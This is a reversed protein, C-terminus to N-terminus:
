ESEIETASQILSLLQGKLQEADAKHKPDALEIFQTIQELNVRSNRRIWITHIRQLEDRLLFLNMRMCNATFKMYMERHPGAAPAQVIFRQGIRIGPFDWYLHQPGPSVWSQPDFSSIVQRRAEAFVNHIAYPGDEWLSLAFWMGLRTKRDRDTHRLSQDSLWGLWTWAVRLDAAERALDTAARKKTAVDAPMGMAAVTRNILDNIPFGVEWFQNGTQYKNDPILDPAFFAGGAPGDQHHRYRQQLSLLARFKAQDIAALPMYRPPGMLKQHLEELAKLRDDSPDALYADEAQYWEQLHETPVAPPEEPFWQAISGHEDGHAIDESLRNLPIGYRLKSLDLAMLQKAAAHAQEDTLIPATFFEPLVRSLEQGFAEDRVAPTAGPLVSGGPQLPRDQIPDLLKTIRYKDRVSHIFSVIRETDDSDLHAMARRRIDDDPFNYEALEIGDPSHCTACAAHGEIAGPKRWIALGEVYPDPKSPPRSIM